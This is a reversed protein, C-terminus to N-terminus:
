YSSPWTFPIGDEGLWEADEMDQTDLRGGFLMTKDSEVEEDKKKRRLRRKMNTQKAVGSRPMKTAACPKKKPRGRGPKVAERPEPISQGANSNTPAPIAETEPIAIPIKRHLMYLIYDSGVPTGDPLYGYGPEGPQKGSSPWLPGYMSYDPGYIPSRFLASPNVYANLPPSSEKAPDDDRRYNSRERRFKARRRHHNDNSAYVRADGSMAIHVEPPSRVMDVPM